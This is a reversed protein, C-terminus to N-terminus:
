DSSDIAPVVRARHDWLPKIRDFLDDRGEPVVVGWGTQRIDDRNVSDPLGFSRVNAAEASVGSKSPRHLWSAACLSRLRLSRVPGLLLEGTTADIGNIHLM